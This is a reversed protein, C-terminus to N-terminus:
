PLQFRLVRGGVDVRVEPDPGRGPDGDPVSGATDFSLDGSEGCAPCAVVGEIRSGFLAGRLSVLRADRRGITWAAVREPSEDCAASLLALTRDLPPRGLGREWVDLLEAASPVHM